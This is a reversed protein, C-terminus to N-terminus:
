NAPPEKKQERELEKVLIEFDKVKTSVWANLGTLSEGFPCGEKKYLYLYMSALGVLSLEESSIDESM